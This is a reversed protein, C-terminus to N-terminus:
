ATSFAESLSKFTNRLEAQFEKTDNIFKSFDSKLDELGEDRLPQSLARKKTPREDAPAESPIEIPVDATGSPPPSQSPSSATTLKLEAVEAQLHEFASRLLANEHEFQAIRAAGHESLPPVKRTVMSPTEKVFDALRTDDAPPTQLRVASPVKSRSCGRSRFRSRKSSSRPVPQGTRGRSPSRSRSQLHETGTSAPSKTRQRERRRQRDVYPVQFRQRCIRDVTPHPGECLACESTCVHDKSPSAKGCSRCIVDEPTPCLNARLGLRRCAYCADIQRRYLTCRLMSQGCMVYNPVKLGDFLVIVTTTNKIRKVQLARPSKPQVIMSSLQEHNFDMDVGRLVGKCTNDPGALYSSVEYSAKRVTIAEVKSYARANKEALTSVVFINQTPNPCVIDDAIEAPSLQAALTLAHAVKIQSVNKVNMGGGPRVIVRYHERPLRPLRWAAILRKKVSTLARGGGSIGNRQILSAHADRESAGHLKRKSIATTWGSELCEEPTIDVAEVEVQMSM